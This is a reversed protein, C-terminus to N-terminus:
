NKEFDSIIKALIEVNVTEIPHKTEPLMFMSGNKLQKYVGATEDLSVMNDKDGLGIMIKNEISVFDRQGLVNKRGLQMMMEATKQLLNEWEVGHRTKLAEGFKPQKEMIKLPNLMQIEKKLIESNWEFKTGLTIISGILGPQQSALYVAVYGGMSHGFVSPKDLHNDIIYQELEKAFQEIGFHKLFPTQGHGSFNFSLVHFGEQKLKNSLPMFQDKAGLAGHLLIITKM